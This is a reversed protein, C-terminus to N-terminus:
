DKSVHEVINCKNELIEMIKKPRVAHAAPIPISFVIDYYTFQAEDKGFDEYRHEIKLPMRPKYISKLEKFREDVKISYDVDSFCSCTWYYSFELKGHYSDIKVQVDDSKFIRKIEKRLLKYNDQIERYNLAKDCYINELKGIMIIKSIKYVPIWIWAVALVFILMAGLFDLVGCEKFWFGFVCSYIFWIAIGPIYIPKTMLKKWEDDLRTVYEMALRYFLYLLGLSVTVAISGLISIVVIIDM